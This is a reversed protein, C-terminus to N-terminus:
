FINEDSFSMEFRKGERENDRGRKRKLKATQKTEIVQMFINLNESFPVCILDAFEETNFFFYLIYTKCKFLYYRLNLVATSRTITFLYEIKFFIFESM